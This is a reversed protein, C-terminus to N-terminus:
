VSERPAATAAGAALEASSIMGLARPATSSVTTERRVSKRALIRSTPDIRRSDLESHRRSRTTRPGRRDLGGAFFTTPTPTHASVARRPRTPHGSVVAVGKTLRGVIGGGLTSQSLATRHESQGAISQRGPPGGHRQSPASHARSGRAADIEWRSCTAGSRSGPRTRTATPGRRIAGRTARASLRTRPSNSGARDLFLDNPIPAGM